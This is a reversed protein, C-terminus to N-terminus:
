AKPNGARQKEAVGEWELAHSVVSGFVFWQVLDDGPGSSDPARSNVYTPPGAFQVRSGVDLSLM